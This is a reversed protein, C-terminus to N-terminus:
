QQVQLDTVRIGEVEFEGENKATPSELWNLELDCCAICKRAPPEPL